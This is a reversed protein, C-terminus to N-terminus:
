EFLEIADEDAVDDLKTIELRAVRRGDTEAIRFQYGDVELKEDRRPQRGFLGFVYGGISDFEESEFKSGVAENVDDLHAM